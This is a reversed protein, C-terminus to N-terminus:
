KRVVARATLPDEPWPHKPYRGRLDKRVQTYTTTWFSKLDSTVQVPRFNPGLLELLLPVRGRALRPTETWGFLEQLKASLVPQRGPEYTLRVRRGSPITLFEPASQDLERVQAPALMGELYPIKATERVESARTKGHCLFELQEALAEDTIAPWELDPVALRVFEYRALWAAAAADEHFISGARPRLAEFLASSAERADAPPAPDERLLLDEYWLQNVSVVRERDADYRTLRARRISQPVLEELWELRAESALSVRLELTGRRREERPDLALFLEGERVVSEPALRVGRGGVMVGTEEAGRRRAVRDPYALILLKLLAEERDAGEPEARHRSGKELRSGLRILDDRVKAAQRAAAPDIGRNRLSPSFRSAEAEALMDLRGLMDSAGRRVGGGTRGREAIDKESLLAALAAGERLMGREAAALLLRALRPHTPLALMRTGLPTIARSGPDLAGLRVLLSEGAEIRDAAPAEYWGFRAPESAGWSRLTLLTSCLDVRQIEPEEFPALAAHRRESWLRVCRGPATRGARGARQDASARSIRELDLRDLGRSSDHRAVRALGSDIVTTVGDITLSTEAINTSLIIKRYDSPQLARDQEDSPLSGHLPLVVAGTREAIPEVAKGARRIEAMGPLFVLIHGQNSRDNLAEAVAEAVTEPDTPRAADQYAVEVPFTRGPVEIVAADDLFRAVPEADLTASMVIIRLDPRVERRIERLLALTLDSHLSREHFEDLVVAGVGELFPDALIQRTLIGETEIMLRTAKSARREFRVQYGVEEGLTWGRESAIRAATSRAAVRRPQLVIVHPNAEDLLGAGIIAPPVRTTKGSGPEAVLVLGRHDKLSDLIRPLSPDIPLPIM